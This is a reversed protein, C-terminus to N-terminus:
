DIWGKHPDWGIKEDLDEAEQDGVEEVICLDVQGEKQIEENLDGDRKKAPETDVRKPLLDSALKPKQSKQDTM